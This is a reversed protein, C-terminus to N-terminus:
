DDDVEPSAGLDLADVLKGLKTVERKRLGMEKTALELFRAEVLHRAWDAPTSARLNAWPCGAAALTNLLNYGAQASPVFLVKPEIPHRRCLDAVQGLLYPLESTSPLESM